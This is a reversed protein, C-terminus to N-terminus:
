YDLDELISPVFTEAIFSRSCFYITRNRTYIGDWEIQNPKIGYLTINSVTFQLQLM